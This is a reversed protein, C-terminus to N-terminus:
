NEKFDETTPFDVMAAADIGFGELSLDAHEEDTLLRLHDKLIGFPIGDMFNYAPDFNPLQKHSVM